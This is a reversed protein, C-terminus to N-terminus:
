AISDRPNNAGLRQLVHAINVVFVGEIIFGPFAAEPRIRQIPDPHIMRILHPRDHAAHNPNENNVANNGNGQQSFVVM